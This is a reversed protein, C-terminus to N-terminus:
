ASQGEQASLDRKMKEEDKKIQDQDKWNKKNNM